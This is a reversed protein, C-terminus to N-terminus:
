ARSHLNDPGHAGTQCRFRPLEDINNEPKEINNAYYGVTGYIWYGALHWRKACNITGTGSDGTPRAQPSGYPVLAPMM